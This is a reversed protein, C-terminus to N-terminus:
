VERTKNGLSLSLATILNSFTEWSHSVSSAAEEENGPGVSQTEKVVAAAMMDDTWWQRSSSIRGGETVM